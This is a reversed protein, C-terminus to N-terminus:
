IVMCNQRYAEGANGANYAYVASHIKVGAPIGIVPLEMEVAECVNRATGDGGAFLLLDAGEELIERAIRITDEATTEGDALTGIVHYSFATKKLVEEGMIGPATLFTVKEELGSAKELAHLARVAAEPVAGLSRAKKQIEAGDSGKLGVRGGIGAVPNVLFGIQKM